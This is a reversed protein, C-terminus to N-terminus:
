PRQLVLIEGNLPEKLETYYEGRTITKSTAEVAALIGVAFGLIEQIEKKFRHDDIPFSGEIMAMALVGRVPHGSPLLAASEMHQITISYM